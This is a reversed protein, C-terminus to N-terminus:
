NDGNEEKVLKGIEEKEKENLVKDDVHQFNWLGSKRIKEIPSFRGLWNPSARCKECKAVTAILRSELGKSGIVKSAQEVKIFRFSFNERLIKSIKKEIQKELEINRKNGLKKRNIKKTFDQEWMEIYDLNEKRILARGINKRFISRDSPKPKNKDLNEIKNKNFVFHDKIRSKFNGNKHTGIRVIRNGGHGFEGLEYFFYIGDDPLEKINFPFKFLKLKSLLKHLWECDDGAQKLFALQKGIGLGKLPIQYNKIKPILYKRYKEGALFIIEDNELDAVKQLNILVRDAWVKIENDDMNNLTINYPEIEQDLKLLGYKASLIFIKDPDLKKAYELGSKFLQSIYLDKAKTKYDLKKSACAILVVRM